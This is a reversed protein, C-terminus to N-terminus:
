LGTGGTERSCVTARWGSKEETNFILLHLLVPNLRQLPLPLHGQQQETVPVHGQCAGIQVQCALALKYNVSSFWYCLFHLFGICSINLFWSRFFIKLERAIRHNLSQPKMALPGLETELWPALIGYAKHHPWLYTHTHTDKKYFFIKVAM